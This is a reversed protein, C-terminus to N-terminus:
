NQPRRTSSHTIALNTMTGAVQGTAAAWTRGLMEMFEVSTATGTSTASYIADLQSEFTERSVSDVFCIHHDSMYEHVEGNGYSCQVGLHSLCRDEHDQPPYEGREVTARSDYIPSIMVTIAGPFVDSFRPSDCDSVLEVIEEQTELVRLVYACANEANEADDSSNDTANTEQTDNSAVSSISCRRARMNSGNISDVVTLKEFSM